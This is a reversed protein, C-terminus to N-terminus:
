IEGSIWGQNKLEKEEGCESLGLLKRDVKM